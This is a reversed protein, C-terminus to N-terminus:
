REEGADIRDFEELLGSADAAPTRLARPLARKGVATELCDKSRHLYAGRGPRRQMRDVVVRGDVVTLRLLESKGARRRCGVCSRVPEV